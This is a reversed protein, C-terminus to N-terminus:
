RYKSCGQDSQKPHILGRYHVLSQEEEDGRRGGGVVKRGWSGGEGVGKREWGRGGGVGERGRRFSYQEDPRLIEHDFRFEFAIHFFFDMSSLSSSLRDVDELPFPFWTKFYDRHKM